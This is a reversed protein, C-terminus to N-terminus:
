GCGKSVSVACTDRGRISRHSDFKFHRSHRRDRPWDTQFDWTEQFRLKHIKLLMDEVVIILVAAFTVAM